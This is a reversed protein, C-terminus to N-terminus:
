GSSERTGSGELDPSGTPKGPLWDYGIPRCHALAAPRHHKKRQPLSCFQDVRMCWPLDTTAVCSVSGPLAPVLSSVASSTSRASSACLLLTVSPVGIRESEASLLEADAVMPSIRPKIEAEIKAMLVSIARKHYPNRGIRLEFM